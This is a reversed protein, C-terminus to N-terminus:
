FPAGRTRASSARRPRRCTRALVRSLAPVDCAAAADGVWDSRDVAAREHELVEAVGLFCLEDTV